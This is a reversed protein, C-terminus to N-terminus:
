TRVGPNLSADFLDSGSELSGTAVYFFPADGLIFRVENVKRSAILMAAETPHALL